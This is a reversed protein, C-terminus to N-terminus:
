AGGTLLREGPEAFRRLRVRRRRLGLRGIRASRVAAVAVVVVVVRHAVLGIVRGVVVAGTVVVLRKVAVILASRRDRIWAFPGRRVAAPRKANQREALGCAPDIRGGEQLVM